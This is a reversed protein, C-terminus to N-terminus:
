AQTAQALAVYEAVPVEEARRQLDFGGAYSAVWGQVELKPITNIAYDEVDMGDPPFPWAVCEQVGAAELAQRLTQHDVTEHGIRGHDVGNGRRLLAPHPDHRIQDLVVHGVRALDGDGPLAARARTAVPVGEVQRRQAKRGAVVQHHPQGHGVVALRRRLARM